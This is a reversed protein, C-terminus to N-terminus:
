RRYSGRQPEACHFNRALVSVRGDNRVAYCFTLAHHRRALEQQLGARQNRDVGRVGPASGIFPPMEAGKMWRGTAVVKIM